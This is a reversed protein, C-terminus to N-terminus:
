VRVIAATSRTTSAVVTSIDAVISAICAVIKAPIRHTAM